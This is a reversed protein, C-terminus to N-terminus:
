KKALKGEFKCYGDLLIRSERDSIIGSVDITSGGGLKAKTKFMGKADLAAEFHRQDRGQQQFDGKVSKGDVTVDITMKYTACKASGAVNVGMGTWTYAASQAVAPGAALFVALVASSITTVYFKGTM